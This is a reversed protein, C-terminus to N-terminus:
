RKASARRQWAAWAAAAQRPGVDQHEAVALPELVAGLLLIGAIGGPAALDAATAEDDDLEAGARGNGGHADFAFGGAASQDSDVGALRFSSGASRQRM